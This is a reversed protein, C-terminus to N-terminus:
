VRAEVYGTKKLFINLWCEDEYSGAATTEYIDLIEVWEIKNLLGTITRMSYDNFFRGHNDWREGDGKKFSMYWIGQAKLAVGIARFTDEIEAKPIHLLSASAWIGDYKEKENLEQARQLLVDRDLFISTIAAMETSADTPTVNFGRDLFIHSDRGSGCGLDLIHADEPLLSIFRERIERANLHITKKIYNDANMRYFLLNKETIIRNRLKIMLPIDAPAWKLTDLEDIALWRLKDHDTLQFSGGTHVAHYGLLRITRGGYNHISEGLLPGIECLISFEEELERQLCQEPTEGRELKGGPFEWYGALHLGERKRAALIRGNKEIIAATVTRL